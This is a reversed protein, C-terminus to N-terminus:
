YYYRRPAFVRPVFVRPAYYRRPAYFRRPAFYRRGYGGRRRYQVDTVVSESGQVTSAVGPAMVAAEARYAPAAIFLLGAIALFGLLKKM